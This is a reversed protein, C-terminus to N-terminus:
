GYVVKGGDVGVWGTVALGVAGEGEFIAGLDVDVAGVVDDRLFYDGHGADCGYIGADSGEM